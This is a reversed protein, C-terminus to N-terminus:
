EQYFSIKRFLRIDAILFEPLDLLDGVLKAGVPNKGKQAGVPFLCIAEILGPIRLLKPFV